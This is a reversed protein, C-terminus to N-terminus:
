NSMFGYHTLEEHQKWQEIIFLFTQLFLMMHVYTDKHREKYIAKLKMMDLSVAHTHQATRIYPDVHQEQDVLGGLFRAIARIENLLLSNYRLL